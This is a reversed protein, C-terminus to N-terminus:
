CFTEQKGKDDDNQYYTAGMIFRQTKKKEIFMKHQMVVTCQNLQSTKAHTGRQLDEGM